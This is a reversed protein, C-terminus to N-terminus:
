KDRGPGYPMQRSIELKEFGRGSPLTDRAAPELSQGDAASYRYVLYRSAVEHGINPIVLQMERSNVYLWRPLAKESFDIRELRHSVPNKRVVAGKLYPPGYSIAFVLSRDVCKALAVNGIVDTDPMDDFATGVAGDIKLHFRNGEVTPEALLAVQSGDDLQCSRVLTLQTANATAAFLLLGLTTLRVIM